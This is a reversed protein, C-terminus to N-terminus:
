AALPKLTYRLMVGEATALERRLEDDGTYDRDAVLRGPVEVAVAPERFPWPAVTVDGDDASRVTVPGTRRETVPPMCLYLSLLDYVQLLEYQAWLTPLDLRVRRGLEREQAQLAAVARRIAAEQEPALRRMTMEPASGFRQNYLGQCHLNVLLGA